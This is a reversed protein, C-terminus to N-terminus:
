IQIQYQDHRAKIMELTVIGTTVIQEVILSGVLNGIYAAEVPSAGVCLSIGIGALVSDGAGVIDLPGTVQYAPFYFEGEESIGSIGLEGLTIFVPKHNEEWLIKQCIVAAQLPDKSIGSVVEPALKEVALLAEGLNVKLFLNKYLSTFHRSDVGYVKEPNKVALEGMVKRIKTTMVGCGDKNVQEAILIGDMESNIRKLAQVLDSELSPPVLTHNKIDIRNQEVIEGDIEKMMPKIYTPTYRESSLVLSGIKINKELLANRLDLSFGDKGLIGLATVEAGLAALNSAVVGAAGPQYKLGEVQYAEKQTELSLESNKRQMSFYLDLFFDGLVGVQVSGFKGSLEDFRSTDMLKGTSIFLWENLFVKSSRIIYIPSQKGTAEEFMIVQEVM